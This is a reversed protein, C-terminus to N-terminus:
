WCDPSQNAQFVGGPALGFLLTNFPQESQERTPQKLHYTVIM